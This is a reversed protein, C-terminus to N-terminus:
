DKNLNYYYGKIKVIYINKESKMIPKFKLIAHDNTQEVLYLNDENIILNKVNVPQINSYLIAEDPNLVGKVIKKYDVSFDYNGSNVTYANKKTRLRIKIVDLNINKLDIDVPVNSSLQLGAFIRKQNIWQKGNWVDIHISDYKEFYEEIFRPLENKVKYSTYNNAIINFLLNLNDGKKEFEYIFYEEDKHIVKYYNISTLNDFGILNGDLDPYVYKYDTDIEWLEILNTFSVENKDEESLKIILSGNVTKLNKLLSYSSKELSSRISTPYSEHEKHYSNGDFSYIFPCSPGGSGGGGGGGGGPNNDVSTQQPQEPQPPTVCSGGSQCIKGDGCSTASSWVLCGNPNATCEQFKNNESCRKQGASCENSCVRQEVCQGNSCIEDDDCRIPTGLEYCTDQDFNGCERYFNTPVCVKEGLTNCDNQCAIEPVCPIQEVAQGTSCVPNRECETLSSKSCKYKSGVNLFGCNGTKTKEDFGKCKEDINDFFYVCVDEQVVECRLRKFESEIPCLGCDNICNLCSEGGEENCINDGCVAGPIFRKVNIRFGYNSSLEGDSVELVINSYSDTNQKTTCWLEKNAKINCAILGINSQSIINYSLENSITEKDNGYGWLNPIVLQEQEKFGRSFDPLNSISPPNNVSPVSPAPAFDDITINSIVAIGGEIQEAVGIGKIAEKCEDTLITNLIYSLREEERIGSFSWVILPDAKIRVDGKIEAALLLELDDICSKPISEYYRLTRLDVGKNPRIIIEVNTRGTEKCYEYKRFIQANEKTQKFFEFEQSPEIFPCNPCSDAERIIEVAEENSANEPIYTCEPQLCGPFVAAKAGKGEVFFNIKGSKPLFCIYDPFDIDINGAYFSGMLKNDKVLFVNKQAKSEVSDKLLPLNNLFDLNIDKSLDFFYIEDADCPIQETFEKVSGYKVAKDLNKLGIEFQAIEANCVKDRAKQVVSYGFFTVFIIVAAILLYKVAEGGQGRKKM